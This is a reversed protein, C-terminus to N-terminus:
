KEWKKMLQDIEEETMGYRSLIEYNNEGLDPAAKMIMPTESYKIWPGRVRITPRNTMSKPTPLDILGNRAIFQPDKTVERSSKVKCCPIGKADMMRVADDIDEFGKLWEEIFRVTVPLNEVRAVTTNIRPDTLGEPKEMVECLIKWLKDSPACIVASQGNKGMFLGFPALSNQHRGLRHPDKDFCGVIDLFSNMFTLGEVLAIDILQGKGCNKAHYLATVIAGYSNIGGVYDGITFGSKTPMGDPEGTMDMVGSMAQALLDYGPKKAYPGTQGYGSVSCYVLAPNLAKLTEYDLGFKKMTGPRFSEIVVDIDPIMKKIVEQGEPDHLDITVSKKGRNYWMYLQSQGDIRPSYGRIDDGVGPREIKIVEAGMDALVAAALPGAATSSFDLVKIGEFVTSM